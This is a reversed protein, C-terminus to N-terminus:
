AKKVLFLIKDNNSCKKNQHDCVVFTSFSWINPDIKFSDYPTSRNIDEIILAGGTKLFQPASQIINNQHNILHSSDDIIIDFVRKSEAFGKSISLCDNVDIKYFEANPLNYNRGKNLKADELDFMCINALPFGETWMLLSASQEIGIEALNFPRSSYQSLIMAYFATYGKRHQCCVSNLAFPSKDTNHKAGIECLDTKLNTSDIYLTKM